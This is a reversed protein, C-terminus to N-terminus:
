YVPTLWAARQPDEGRVARFFAEQLARTVPGPEGAGVPRGDVEVVPAIQAGTGTLFMEDAVYLETRDVPREAVEVGAEAALDFVIDRTIGELIDETVPPTVLTGNRLIFLNAGSAESVHGEGNLLLAEDCGNRRADDVALAINVYSGTTKSRSPIANDSVRQWASVQVRIGGIDAYDGMPACIIGVEDRLGSLGVKIVRSAKFAIPRIYVDQRLGSERLLRLTAEGLQEVSYPCAIRLISCSRHFRRYHEEMKLVYLQGRAANWYARIGEFCGTGYHLAHTAISITAEELPVIRGKWFAYGTEIERLPSPGEAGGPASPLLKAVFDM